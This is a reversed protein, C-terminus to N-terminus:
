IEEWHMKEVGKGKWAHTTPRPMWVHGLLIPPMFVEVEAACTPGSGEVEGEEDGEMEEEVVSEGLDVGTGALMINVREGDEDDRSETGDSGAARDVDEGENDDADM